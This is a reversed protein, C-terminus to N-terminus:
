DVWEFGQDPNGSTIGNLFFEGHRLVQDTTPRTVVGPCTNYVSLVRGDDQVGQNEVVRFYYNYAGLANNDQIAWDYEINDGVAIATPNTFGTGTSASEYFNERDNTGAILASPVQTGDTLGSVADYHWDRNGITNSNSDVDVWSGSVCDQSTSGKAYQLKMAVTNITLAQGTVQIQIRIRLQKTLDPPIYQAPIAPIQADQGLNLTGSPWADTETLNNIPAYWQFHKLTFNVKQAIVVNVYAPVNSQSSLTFTVLHHHGSEALNNNLALSNTATANPTAAGSTVAYVNTHSLQGVATQNYTGSSNPRLFVQNYAGGSGSLVNWGTGPDGDFMAILNLSIAPVDASLQGLIPQDYPPDANGAAGAPATSTATGSALTHTHNFAAPIPSNLFSSRQASTGDPTLSMNNCTTPPSSGTACVQNTATDSGGTTIATGNYVRIMANDQATYRSVNSVGSLSSFMAIGQNPIINPICIGSSPAYEILELTRYAPLFSNSDAGIVPTTLNHTHTQASPNVAATTSGDGPPNGDAAGIVTSALTANSQGGGGTGGVNGISEGRIFKNTPDTGNITHTGDVKQWDTPLTNAPDWFIMLHSGSCAASVHMFVLLNMILIAGLMSALKGALSLNRIAQPLQRWNVEFLDLKAAQDSGQKMKNTQVKATQLEL